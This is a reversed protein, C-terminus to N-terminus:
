IDRGLTAGEEYVPTHTKACISWLCGAIGGTHNSLNTMNQCASRWPAPVWLGRWALFSRMCHITSYRPRYSM